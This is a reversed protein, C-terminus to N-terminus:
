TDCGLPGDRLEANDIRAAQLGGLDTTGDFWIVVTIRNTSAPAIGTASFSQWQGPDM